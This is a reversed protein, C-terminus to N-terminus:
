NLVKAMLKNITEKATARFQDAQKVAQKEDIGERRYYELNQQYVKDLIADNIAPTYAVKPDIGLEEVYDMDDIDLGRLALMNYNKNQSM